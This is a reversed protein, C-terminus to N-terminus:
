EKHGHNLNISLNLNLGLNNGLIGIQHPIFICQITLDKIKPGQWPRRAVFCLPEMPNPITEEQFIAKLSPISPCGKTEHSKSCIMYTEVIKADLPCERLAYKKRCKPCFIALSNAETKKKNQIELTDLQESLSGLIDTKFEDPMNGIEPRSVSGIASKNERVLSPDIPGKETKSKGRSLHVCLKEIDSLPLQSIDGKGMMNLIDIWEDKIAKLLIAKLTEEDLNNM